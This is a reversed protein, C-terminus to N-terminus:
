LAGGRANRSVALVFGALVLHFTPPIWTTFWRPASPVGLGIAIRTVALAMYIAGVAALWRAAAPRLRLAGTWARWSFWTMAALIPIQAALLVPYDLTSGQWQEFAPLWLLPFWLQVAQGLVRLGFLATLLVMVSAPDM